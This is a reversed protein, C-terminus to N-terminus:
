GAERFDHAGLNPYVQLTALKARLWSRIVDGLGFFRPGVVRRGGGQPGAWVRGSGLQM